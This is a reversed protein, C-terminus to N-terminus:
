VIPNGRQKKLIFLFFGLIITMFSAVILFTIPSPYFISVSFIFMFFVLVLIAVTAITKLERFGVGKLFLLIILVLLEFILIGFGLFGAILGFWALSDKDIQKFLIGFFWHNGIELCLAGLLLWPALNFLNQFFATINKFEFFAKLM